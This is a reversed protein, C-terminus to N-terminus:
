VLKSKSTELSEKLLMETEHRVLDRRLLPKRLTNLLEDVSNTFKDKPLKFDDITKNFIPTPASISLLRDLYISRLSKMREIAANDDPSLMKLDDHYMKLYTLYMGIYQKKNYVSVIPDAEFSSVASKGYKSLISGMNDLNDLIYQEYASKKYESDKRNYWTTGNKIIIDNAIKRKTDNIDNEITKSNDPRKKVAGRTFTFWNKSNELCSSLTIYYHESASM